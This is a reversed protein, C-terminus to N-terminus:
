ICTLLSKAPSQGMTIRIWKRMFNGRLKEILSKETTRFPINSNIAFETQNVMEDLAQCLEEYTLHADHNIDIRDFESELLRIKQSTSLEHFQM